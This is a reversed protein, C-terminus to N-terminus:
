IRMREWERVEEKIGGERDEDKGVRKGRGVRGQGCM